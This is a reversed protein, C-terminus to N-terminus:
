YSASARIAKETSERMQPCVSAMAKENQYFILL